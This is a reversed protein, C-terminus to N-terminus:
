FSGEAINDVSFAEKLTGNGSLEIFTLGGVSTVENFNNLICNDLIVSIERRGSGLTVGNTASLEFEFGAPDSTTILASSGSMGGLFIKQYTDDSFGLTADFEFKMETAHGQQYENSSIGGSREVIKNIKISANQVETAATGAIKVTCLAHPFVPLSSIVASSASTSPITTKGKADISIKLNENLAIGLECSEVLLGTHTLVTDTSSNNGREGTFSPPDDNITYTHKWDSTTQAHAVTGFTFYLMRGSQIDGSISLGVDVMGSTLKQTEIASIGTTETIERTLPDSIDSILLGADRNPSATATGWTTEEGILLYKLTSPYTM